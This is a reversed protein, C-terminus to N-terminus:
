RVVAPNFIVRTQTARLVNEVYIYIYIQCETSSVYSITLQSTAPPKFPVKEEIEQGVIFIFVHRNPVIESEDM